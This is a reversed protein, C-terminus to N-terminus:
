DSQHWDPDRVVLAELEELLLELRLAQQYVDSPVKDEKPRIKYRKKVGARAAFYRVESFVLTALDFVDSPVIEREVDPKFDLLRLGSRVAIIRALALARTLRRYVDLPEKGPAYAPLAPENQRWAPSLADMTEALYENSLTVM